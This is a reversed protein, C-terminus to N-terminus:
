FVRLMTGHVTMLIYCEITKTPNLKEMLKRYLELQKVYEQPLEDASNFKRPTNKYDLIVIKNDFETLRDIKGSVELGDVEGLISVEARSNESFFKQFNNDRMIGLAVKKVEARAISPLDSLASNVYAESIDNWHNPDIKPLIELLRHVAKGKLIPTRGLAPSDSRDHYSFFQSPSIVKKPELVPSYKEISSLIKEIRSAKEPSDNSCVAIERREGLSERGYILKKGHEGGGLDVEKEEANLSALARRAMTYWSNVRDEGEGEDTSPRGALGCLYLENEARTIAVYF